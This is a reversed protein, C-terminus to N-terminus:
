RRGNYIADLHDSFSEIKESRDPWYIYEKEPNAKLNNLLPQVANYLEDLKSQTALSENTAMQGEAKADQVAKLETEDILSFGFDFDRAM